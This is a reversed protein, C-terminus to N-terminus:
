WHWIESYFHRFNLVKLVNLCIGNNNVVVLSNNPLVNIYAAAAEQLVSEAREEQKGPQRDTDVSLSSNTGNTIWEWERELKKKM